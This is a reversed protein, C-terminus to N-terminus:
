TLHRLSHCWWLAAASICVWLPLQHGLLLAAANSAVPGLASPRARSRVTESGQALRVVAGCFSEAAQMFARCAHPAHDHRLEVLLKARPEGDVSLVLSVLPNTGLAPGLPSGFDQTRSPSRRRRGVASRLGAGYREPEPSGSGYRHDAGLSPLKRGFTPSRRSRAQGSSHLPSAM